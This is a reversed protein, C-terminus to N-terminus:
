CFLQGDSKLGKPLYNLHIMFFLARLVSGQPSAASAFKGNPIQGSLVVRQQRIHYFSKFSTVHITMLEMTKLNIFFAKM